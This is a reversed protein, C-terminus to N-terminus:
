KGLIFELILKRDVGLDELHDKGKLNGILISYANTMEGICAVNGAWRM